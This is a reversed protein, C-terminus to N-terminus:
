CLRTVLDFGADDATRLATVAIQVLPGSALRDFTDRAIPQLAGDNQDAATAAIPSILRAAPEFHGARALDVVRREVIAVLEQWRDPESEIALLDTLLDVDFGRLPADGVTALWSDIREPPDDTM